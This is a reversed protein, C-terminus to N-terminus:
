LCQRYSCHLDGGHNFTCESLWRSVKGLDLAQGLNPMLYFAPDWRYDTKSNSVFFIPEDLAASVTFWGRGRSAMSNWHWSIEKNSHILNHGGSQIRTQNYLVFSVIRCLPCDSGRIRGATGLKWTAREFSLSSLIKVEFPVQVCYACLRNSTPM